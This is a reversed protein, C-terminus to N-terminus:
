LGALVAQALLHRGAPSPHADCTLPSISTVILLGAKCASGGVAMAAPRFATFGDAIVAGLPAAVAAIYGDLATTILVDTSDSYDRAYYTTVVLKGGYAQRIQSLIWQVNAAVQTVVARLNDNFCASSSLTACYHQLLFVDNAGLSLTVLQTTPHAHLFALAFTLQDGSYSSHLPFFSRYIGCGNDALSRVIFSGSAEGPCSGNTGTLGLTQAVEEPYGVFATSNSFSLTPNFGFSLSDGLALYEHPATSAQVPLAAASWALVALIVVGSFRKRL